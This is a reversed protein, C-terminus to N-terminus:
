LLVLIVTCGCNSAPPLGQSFCIDVDGQSELHGLLREAALVFPPTPYWEFKSAVWLICTHGLLQM